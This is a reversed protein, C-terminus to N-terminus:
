RKWVVSKIDKEIDDYDSLEGMTENILKSEEKRKDYLYTMTELDNDHAQFYFHEGSQNINHGSFYGYRVEKHQYRSLFKSEEDLPSGFCSIVPFGLEESFISIVYGFLNRIGDPIEKNSEIFKKNAELEGCALVPKWDRGREYIALHLPQVFVNEGTIKDKLIIVQNHASCLFGTVKLQSSELNCCNVGDGWTLLDLFKHTCIFELDFIQGGMKKKGVDLSFDGFNRWSELNIDGSNILEMFNCQAVESLYNSSIKITDPHYRFAQYGQEGGYMYALIAQKFFDFEHGSIHDHEDMTSVKYVLRHSINLPKINKRYSEIDNDNGDLQFIKLFLVENLEDIDSIKKNGINLDYFDLLMLNCFLEINSMLSEHSIKEKRSCSEVFIELLQTKQEILLNRGCLAAISIILLRNLDGKRFQKNKRFTELANSISELPIDAGLLLLSNLLTTRKDKKYTLKIAFNIANSKKNFVPLLQSIIRTMVETKQFKIIQDTMDRSLRIEDEDYNKEKEINKLFICTYIWGSITETIKELHFNRYFETKANEVKGHLKLFTENIWMKVEETFINKLYIDTELTEMFIKFVDHYSDTQEAQFYLNILPHFPQAKEGSKNIKKLIPDFNEKVHVYYTKSLFELILKSKLDHM